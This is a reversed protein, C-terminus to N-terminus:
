LTTRIYQVSLRPADAGTTVVLVPALTGPPSQTRIRYGVIPRTQGLAQAQADLTLTVSSFVLLNGRRVGVAQVVPVGTTISVVDTGKADVGVLEFLPTGRTFGAPRANYLTLTDLTLVVSARAVAQKSLGTSDLRPTLKLALPFGDQLLARGAPLTAPTLRRVRTGVKIVDFRVTDRRSAALLYSRSSGYLFSRVLGTQGPEPEIAFGKFSTTTKTSRLSTDAAALFSAPLDIKITTDTPAVSFTALVDGTTYTTDSTSVTGPLEATLARLRLRITATTDGFAYRDRRLVLRAFSVPRFRFTDVTSSGVATPGTVDFYGTAEITGLLPDAVRGALVRRANIRLTDSSLTGGTFDRQRVTDARVAVRADEPVGGQADILDAGVPNTDNCASFLAALGLFLAALPLRFVM